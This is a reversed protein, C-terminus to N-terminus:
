FLTSCQKKVKFCGGELVRKEINAKNRGKEDLPFIDVENFLRLNCLVIIEGSFLGSKTGSCIIKLCIHKVNLEPFWFILLELLVLWTIKGVWCEM